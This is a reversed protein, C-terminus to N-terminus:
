RLLPPQTHNRSAGCLPLPIGSEANQNFRSRTFLSCLIALAVWNVPAAVLKCIANLAKYAEMVETWREASQAWSRVFPILNYAEAEGTLLAM